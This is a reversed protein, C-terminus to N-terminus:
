ASPAAIAGDDAAALPLRLRFCAGGLPCSDALEVRGGHAEAVTQVIALGLGSGGPQKEDRASFFRNFIKDRHGPSVGPGDDMVSVVADAAETSVRVTVRERCFALANDIMNHLAQGVREEVAIVAPEAAREVTFRVQHHRPEQVYEEVVRAALAGLLLTRREERPLREDMRALELMAQVSSGMHAAAQEIAHAIRERREGDLPESGSLLEASAAITSLPSKLDHALDATSRTTQSLRGQLRRVLEDFDRSLDGIEDRRRLALSTAKGTTLYVRIARQVRALPSVVHWAMWLGLAVAVLSVGLTLQLLQYRLDYLARVTRRSGRALYLVGQGDRASVAHYFVVMKASLPERVADLSTGALASRVEDRQAPPPLTREFELIGPAGDPGYFFDAFAALLGRREIARGEGHLPDTTRIAIGNADIVRLFVHEHRAFDDLWDAGQTARVPRGAAQRQLREGADRLDAPISRRIWAEYAGGFWAIIVPCLVLVLCAALIKGRM